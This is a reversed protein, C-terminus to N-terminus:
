MEEKKLNWHYVPLPTHICPFGVGWLCGFGENEEGQYQKNLHPTCTM